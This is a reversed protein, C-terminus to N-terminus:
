SHLITAVLAPEIASFYFYYKPKKSIIYKCEVTEAHGGVMSGGKSSNKEDCSREKSDFGRIAVVGYSHSARSAVLQPYGVYNLEGGQRNGPREM